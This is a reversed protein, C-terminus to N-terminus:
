LGVKIGTQLSPWIASSSRINYPQTRNLFFIQLGPQAYLSFMKNIRYEFGLATLSSIQVGEAMYSEQEANKLVDFAFQRTYFRNKVGKEIVAGQSIYMGFRSGRIMNLRVSFPVGVYYLENEYEVFENNVVSTISKTKLRTLLLGTELGWSDSFSRNVIVGLSVPQSHTTNEIGTFRSTESSLKSSYPDNVFDASSGKYASSPDSSAQGQITGYGLALQWNGSKSREPLLDDAPLLVSLDIIKQDKQGAAAIEAQKTNATHDPILLEAEPEQILTEVVQYPDSHAVFGPDTKEGTASLDAEPSIQQIQAIVAKDAKAYIGEPATSTESPTAALFTEFPTAAVSAEPPTATDSTESKDPVSEQSYRPTLNESGPNSIQFLLLGGIGFLLLLSAAFALRYFLIVKKRRQLGAKVGSWVAPDPSHTFDKFSERMGQEFGTHGKKETM